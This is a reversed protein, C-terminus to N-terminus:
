LIQKVDSLSAQGISNSVNLKVSTGGSSISAVQGYQLGTAGASSTGLTSTVVFKYAGDSVTAGADNKGDWVMPVVGAAQSGLDITRISNGVADKITVSVDDAATTVNVGLIGQSSALTVNTGDVLVGRGILNSATLSQTSQMDTILGSLTTNLKDIGTVTSLQALQSTVEANDMPNLPDQNKMQTILLTMFRDQAAQADSAATTTTTGNVAALLSDSVAAVSTM